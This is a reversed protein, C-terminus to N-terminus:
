TLHKAPERSRAGWICLYLFSLSIFSLFYDIKNIYKKKWGFPLLKLSFFSPQFSLSHSCFCHFTIFSIPLLPLSVCLFHFSASQFLLLYFTNGNNENDKTPMELYWQKHNMLNYQSKMAINVISAGIDQWKNWNSALIFYCNIRAYMPFIDINPILM